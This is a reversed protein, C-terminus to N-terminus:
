TITLGDASIGNVIDAIYRHEICTSPGFTQADDPLHDKIWQKAEESHPQLLFITGHNELTFDM